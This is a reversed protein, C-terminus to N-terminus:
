MRNMRMVREFEGIGGFMVISLGEEDEDDGNLFRVKELLLILGVLGVCGM